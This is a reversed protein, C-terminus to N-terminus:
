PMHIQRDKAHKYIRTNTAKHPTLSFIFTHHQPTVEGQINEVM